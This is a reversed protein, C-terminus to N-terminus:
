LLKLAEEIHQLTEPAIGGKTQTASILAAKAEAANREIVELRRLKIQIDKEVLEQDKAKLVLSFLAKVNGPLAAPNIALEFAKQKLADITAADFRGPSSASEEAVEFAVSVARRRRAILEAACVTQYFASLSALSTKVGFEKEVLARAQHYPVGSLLWEALKAQAEEPLAMLVSDSRPKTM